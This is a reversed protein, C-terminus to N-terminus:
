ADSASGMMGKEAVKVCSRTVTSSDAGAGRGVSVRGCRVRVRINSPLFWTRARLDRSLNDTDGHFGSGNDCSTM